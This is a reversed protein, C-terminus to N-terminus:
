DASAVAWLDSPDAIGGSEIITRVSDRNDRLAPVLAILQRWAEHREPAPAQLFKPSSVRRHLEIVAQAAAPGQPEGPQAPPTDTSWPLGFRSELEAIHARLAALSQQEEDPQASLTEVLGRAGLLLALERVVDAPEDPVHVYGFYRGAVGLVSRLRDPARGDASASGKLSWLRVSAPIGGVAEPVRLAVLISPGMLGISMSAAMREPTARNWQYRWLGIMAAETLQLEHRAVVTFGKRALHDLAQTAKGFAFADPKFLAYSTRWLQPLLADAEPGMVRSLAYLFGPDDLYVNLKGPVRSWGAVTPPPFAPPTM